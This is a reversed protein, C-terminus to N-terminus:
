CAISNRQQDTRNVTNFERGKTAELIAKQARQAEVRRALCLVQESAIENPRKTATLERIIKTMM